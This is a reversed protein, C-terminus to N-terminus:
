PSSGRTPEASPEASPEVAAVDDTPVGAKADAAYLVPGGGQYDPGASGWWRGDDLRAVADVASVTGYTGRSECTSRHQARVGM